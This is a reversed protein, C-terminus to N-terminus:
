AQLLSQVRYRLERMPVDQRTFMCTATLSVLFFCKSLKIKGLYVPLLDSFHSLYGILYTTNM